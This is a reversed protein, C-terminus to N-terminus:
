NIIKISNGSDILDYLTEALRNESVEIYPQIDEVLGFFEKGIRKSIIKDWYADVPNYTLMITFTKM